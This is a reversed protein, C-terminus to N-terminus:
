RSEDDVDADHRSDLEYQERRREARHQNIYTHRLITDLWAAFTGKGQFSAREASM